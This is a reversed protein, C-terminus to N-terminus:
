NIKVKETYIKKTKVGHHVPRSLGIFVASLLTFVYAQIYAVLLEIVSMFVTMLVSFITMGITIGTGMKVTTFIVFTLALMVTHGAFINALLRIMLAFPKSIVGFLEILPMLPIPVKLWKPVDPWFVERWYERNGFVNVAILTCCALVLTVAINGTTNAGGPFVPILGMINNIFIFFFATLLYSSYRKYDDGISKHIVEEEIDMVLMEVACAFKGPATNATRRKCARAVPLFIALMIAANILLALANKTISIDWPRYEAGAADHGVIKGKYVGEAALRFGRYTEGHALRASSFLLWDGDASRVIVPLYLAIHRGNITTIHWWYSDATHEGIIDGVARAEDAAQAEHQGDDAAQLSAPLLAMALWTLIWIRWDFRM